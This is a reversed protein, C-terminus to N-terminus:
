RWDLAPEPELLTRMRIHATAYSALWTTGPFVLPKAVQRESMMGVFDQGPTRIGAPDRLISLRTVRLPSARDRYPQQVHPVCRWMCFVAADFENRARM